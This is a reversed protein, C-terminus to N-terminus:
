KVRHVSTFGSKCARYKSCNRPDRKYFPCAYQIANLGDESLPSDKKPRKGGREDGDEQDENPREREVTPRKRGGSQSTSGSQSKREVRSGNKSSLSSSTDGSAETLTEAEADFMGHLEKMVRGLVKSKLNEVLGTM